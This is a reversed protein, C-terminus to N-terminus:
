DWGHTVAEILAVGVPTAEQGGAGSRYGDVMRVAADHYAGQPDDGATVDDADAAPSVGSARDAFSTAYGVLHDVLRSVDFDGCPTPLRAQDPLVGGMVGDTVRLAEELHDVDPSTVARTSQDGTM